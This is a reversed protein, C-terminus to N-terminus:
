SFDLAILLNFPTFTLSPYLLLSRCPFPLLFKSVFMYNTAVGEEVNDTLFNSLHRAALM